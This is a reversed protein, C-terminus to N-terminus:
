ARYNGVGTGTASRDYIQKSKAEWEARTKKDLAVEKIETSVALNGLLRNVNEIANAWRKNKSGAM